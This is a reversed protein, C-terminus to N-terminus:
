WFDEVKLVAILTSSKQYGIRVVASNQALAVTATLAFAAVLALSRLIRHINM